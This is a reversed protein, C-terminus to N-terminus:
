ASVRSRSRKARFALLAKLSRWSDRVARVTSAKERKRDFLVPIQEVRLGDDLARITVETDWFWHPDEVTRLVPLINSKRFFKFGAETDLSPTQLISMALWRYVKSMLFRHLSFINFKYFREAIVVDARGQQLPVLASPIYRAHIELDVDIFGAFAGRSMMLGETVTAGRGKNQQHFVARLRHHPHLTMYEKILDPTNDASKDDILILEYQTQLRDLLHLIEDLSKHLHPAENYCAIVISLDVPDEEKASSTGYAVDSSASTPAQEPHFFSIIQEIIYDVDSMPLHPYLPLRVISASVKESIPCQGAHTGLTDLAYPSLHLPLYHFIAGIGRTKLFSLLDNRLVLDRVLFFAIHYNTTAYAPIDTFTIHGEQVLRDLGRRYRMVIAERASRIEEFRELQVRLLEALVASMAYSSGKSVWTYKDIEGRLFRSRNTGKEYMYEVREKFAPNNIVLAGGEGSVYNKTDHFSFCGFDGITGLPRSRYLAGVAHAADELIFLRHEAAVSRVADMDNAVGAYHVPIIGRVKNEACAAAVKQLDLNLTKEEIDVFLPTGGAQLVANAASVFTFSPVIVHDDPTLDLAHLGLEMATTCSTTLLVDHGGTFQKLAQKAARMNEEITGIRGTRLARM